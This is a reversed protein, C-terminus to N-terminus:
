TAGQGSPETSGDPVVDTPPETKPHGAWWLLIAGCVLAVASATWQSGTFFFIRKDIRLSDELIRSLGYWLGFTLTLIGARRPRRMLVFWLVAFLAAASIMDYLATQHVGVGQAIVHGAGDRLSAGARDITELHGGQLDASCIGDGCGFPPALTGGKYQWALLWSTPKGLHDGIVLDGIRGIAIGLALSPAIPDAVQFFTYGERRVRPVNVLTAGAIGGLLSIGGNWVALMQGVNDFESLHALVYFLRSGVLAGILSWFIVGSADEASIGWRPAIRTFFWAGVLFGVAIGIGHPSIAIVEGIRIRDLVPWGISALSTAPIVM